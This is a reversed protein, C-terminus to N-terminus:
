FSLYRGAVWGSSNQYTVLCWPANSVTQCNHVVVQKGNYPISSLKTYTTGPGNRINLGEPDTSSVNSVNRFRSTREAVYKAAAYGKQCNYEIQCWGDSCNSVILGAGSAPIVSLVSAQMSPAARLLLGNDADQWPVNVIVHSGVPQVCAPAAPKAETPRPPLAAPLTINCSDLLFRCERPGGQQAPDVPNFQAGGQDEVNIRPGRPKDPNAPGQAVLSRAQMRDPAIPRYAAPLDSSADAPCIAGCALVAAVLVAQSRPTLGAGNRGNIWGELVARFDRKAAIKVLLARM